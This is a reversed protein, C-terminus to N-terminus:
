KATLWVGAILTAVGVLRSMELPRAVAGLLGFSELAMSVIFQTAVFISFATTLGLRPATYGIAGAIVLGLVGVTLAYWPVEVMGKINGGKWISLIVVALLAGSAYNIFLGGSTGVNKELIGM